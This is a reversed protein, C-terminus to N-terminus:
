AQGLLTLFEQCKRSWQERKEVSLRASERALAQQRKQVDRVAEAISEVTHDVFVAGKEFYEVLVPQRSLILPKGLHMGEVGGAVLSDSNTTLTMVANASNLLNWYEEGKLYGPFSVNEPASDMLDRDALATDGLIYCRVEPLLRAAAVVLEVPEDPAFTSIVALEFEEIKSTVTRGVSPIEQAPDELIMARAGWSEFLRKYGSFDVLNVKAKRALFRLLPLSWGWRRGTFSHGHINMVYPIRAFLCYTYVCLPAFVPTNVVFVATPRQRLLIVWTKLWMPVYKIPAVLPRKWSLYHIMYAPAKLERAFHETSLSHPGWFVVAMGGQKTM